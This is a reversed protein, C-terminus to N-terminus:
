GDPDLEMTPHLDVTAAEAQLERAIEVSPVGDLVVKWQGCGDFVVETGQFGVGLVRELFEAAADPHDFRGYVVEVPRGEVAPRACEDRPFPPSGGALTVLPYGLLPVAVIAVAVALRGTM